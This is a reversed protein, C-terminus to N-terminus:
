PNQVWSLYLLITKNVYEGPFRIAAASNDLINFTITSMCFIPKTQQNINKFQHKTQHNQQNNPNNNKKTFHTRSPSNNKISINDFFAFPYDTSSNQHFIWRSREDTLIQQKKCFL